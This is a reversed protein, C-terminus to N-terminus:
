GHNCDQDRKPFLDTIEVGLVEAIKKLRLVSINREGREVAGLYSRDFGYELAFREQSLGREKRLERIRRGIEVMIAIKRAMPKISSCNRM